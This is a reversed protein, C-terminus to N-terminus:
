YVAFTDVSASDGVKRQLIFGLENPSNDIWTLKVNTTDPNDKIAKLESPAPIISLLTKITVENSYVSETLSNFAKVRYKYTTTDTIKFDVYITDNAAVTDIPQFASVIPGLESREIIFGDESDSSDRWSLEVRMFKAEAKLNQPAKIKPITECYGIGKLGNNYHNQIDSLNLATNYFAFEDLSGQYYYYPSVNFYGLTVPTNGDFGTSYSKLISDVKSGDM